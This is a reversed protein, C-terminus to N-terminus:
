SLKLLKKTVFKRLPDRTKSKHHVEGCLVILSKVVCKINNVWAGGPTFETSYNKLRGRMINMKTNKMVADYLFYLTKQQVLWDVTKLITQNTRMMLNPTNSTQM